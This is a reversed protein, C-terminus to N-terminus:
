SIPAGYKRFYATSGNNFISLDNSHDGNGAIDGFALLHFRFLRFELIWFRCSWFASLRPRM